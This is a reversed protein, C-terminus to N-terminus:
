ASAGGAPLVTGDEFDEESEDGYAYARPRRGLIVGIVILIIGVLGLAVPLIIEVLSIETDYKKATHVASAISSPVDTFHADLLNLLPTAPNSALYVHESIVASVPAGTIPDVYETTVGANYEGLTVTQEDKVGVLSGPVTQSGSETPSMTEVYKYTSEGDVTATGAYVASVPKMLTTNFVQYTKKQANFPWVYALGSEGALNTDAGVYSGCCNVLEGTRRNFALRQLTYEFQQQNTTDYLYTFETWVAHSSNGDAVSGQVTNTLHMTVGTLEKVLTPNFYSVNSATLETIENENLPFKVAQDAIYFRLFLALVILFTGLASAILGIVRRV